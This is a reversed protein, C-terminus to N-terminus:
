RRTAVSKADFSTPILPTRIPGPAVTNVRIGSEVLAMSLSRTCYVIAGKTMAYDVLRPSGRFATIPATNIIAGDRELHPLTCLSLNASGPIGAM